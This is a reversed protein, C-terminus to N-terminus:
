RGVRPGRDSMDKVKKPEKINSLDNGFSVDLIGLKSKEAKWSAEDEFVALENATEISDGEKLIRAYPIDGKIIFWVDKEFKYEKM